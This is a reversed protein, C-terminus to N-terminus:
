EEQRRLLAYDEHRKMAVLVRKVKDRSVSLEKAITAVSNGQRARAVIEATEQITM